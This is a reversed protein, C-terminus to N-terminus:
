EPEVAELPINLREAMEKLYVLHPQFKDEQLCARYYANFCQAAKDMDGRRGWIMAADLPILHHFDDFLPYEARHELIADRNNLTDFIPMAYTRLRAVIDRGIKEPRRKLDYYSDTGDVLCGLRCRINCEYEHYYKKRPQVPVFEREVCEPVRIGLNVWLVGLVGKAACGNQLHVVQAIDGDVLRQMTRGYKRFGLPKLYEYVIRQITDVAETSSGKHRGFISFM